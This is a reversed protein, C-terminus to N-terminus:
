GSCLYFNLDASTPCVKVAGVNGCNATGANCFDWVCSKGDAGSPIVGYGYPEFQSASNAGGLSYYLGQYNGTTTLTYDLETDPNGTNSSTWAKIAVGPNSSVPEKYQGGAALQVVPGAGLQDVHQVFVPFKCDNTVYASGALAATAFSLIALIKSSM